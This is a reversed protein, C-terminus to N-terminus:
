RLGTLLYKPRVAAGLQVDCKHLSAKRCQYTEPDCRSDNHLQKSLSWLIMRHLIYKM